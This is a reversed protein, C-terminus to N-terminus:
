NKRLAMFRYSGAILAAIDILLAPLPSLVPYALYSSRWVPHFKEKFKRLGKYNYFRNGYEYALRAVKETKRAYPSEGVGSLPAMGLNLWTYNQARAYEILNVFLFDMTGPPADEYHRMLDISLERHRAYDPMLNAFAVIRENVTVVAIESRALYAENFAGLSFGKEAANRQQLWHDSIARLAQWTAAPLPHQLWSFQVGARKARNVAHRVSEGRKGNLTFANVDVLASEGLKFLSFGADHYRHLASEDVEYFCPTVNHRDAYERFAVVLIDSVNENGCPDGLAVMRDRILSYQIFADRNTSWFLRKDGLFSLHSHGTGGYRNLVSAAEALEDPGACPITVPSRRFVAWSLFILVFVAAVLGTVM